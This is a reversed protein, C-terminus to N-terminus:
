QKYLAKMLPPASSQHPEEAEAAVNEEIVQSFELV